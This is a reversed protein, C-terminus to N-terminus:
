PHRKLVYYSGRKEGMKVLIGRSVLDAFDRRLTESHVDPCLEQLDKNTIRPNKQNILFDLAYEQRRNIPQGRFVGGFLQPEAPADEAAEPRNYLSVRFGGATETFVPRPLRHENVLALVRDVGYGLREIFGMDSLVQVIATNRSFREDVINDVTVPGPLGGPSTIELRDSFLYLRIGDGQISYDRHAVANVVLERVAQLPYEFEESRAMNGSLQVGKRMSDILFTEVRRIQQPLPGNIDQRLFVDGMEKGAFRAATIESGRLFQQPDRGFLLMGANTPYLKGEQRVLCGRKILVLEPSIGGMGTLKSTYMVVQDWDLDEKRAGRVPLSEFSVDGREFLLRRMHLPALPENKEGVRTLYRGDVAYVHPMGRPVQIAMMVVDKVKIVDPLPIILPPQIALAAALVRDSMAEPDDIGGPKNTRVTVGLVLTGGRANAMAAMTTAIEEVPARGPLWEVTESRGNELLDLIEQEQM